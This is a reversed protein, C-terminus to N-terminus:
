THLTSFSAKENKGFFTGEWSSGRLGGVRRRRHLQPPSWVPVYHVESRTLGGCAPAHRSLRAVMRGWTECSVRASVWTFRECSVRRKGEPLSVSKLNLALCCQRPHFHRHTPADWHGGPRGGGSKMGRGEQSCETLRKGATRWRASFLVSLSRAKINIDISGHHASRSVM